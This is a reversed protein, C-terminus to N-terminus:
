DSEAHMQKKQTKKKTHEAPVVIAEVMPAVMQERVKSPGPNNEIPGKATQSEEVALRFSVGCRRLLLGEEM